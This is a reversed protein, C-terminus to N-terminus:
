RDFKTLSYLLWIIMVCSVLVIAYTLVQEKQSVFCNKGGRWQASSSRQLVDGLDFYKLLSFIMMLFAMLYSRNPHDVLFNVLAQEKIAKHCMGSRMSISCLLYKTLRRSYVLRAMVFKM